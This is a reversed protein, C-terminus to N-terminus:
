ESNHFLPLLKNGFLSVLDQKVDRDFESKVSGHSKVLVFLSRSAGSEHYGGRM